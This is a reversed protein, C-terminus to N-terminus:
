RWGLTPAALVSVPLQKSGAHLSVAQPQRSIVASRRRQMDHQLVNGSCTNSEFSLRGRASHAANAEVRARWAAWSSVSLFICSSSGMQFAVMSRTRSLATSM